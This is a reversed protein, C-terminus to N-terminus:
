PTTALMLAVPPFSAVEGNAIVQVASGWGGGAAVGMGSDGQSSRGSPTSNSAVAAHHSRGPCDDSKKHKSSTVTEPSTQAAVTVSSPAVPSQFFMAETAPLAFPEAGM